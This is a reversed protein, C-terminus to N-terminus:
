MTRLKILTFRRGNRGVRTQTYFAPGPSTLKVAVAALAVIVLAPLALVIVLACDLVPKVSGYLGGAPLSHLAADPPTGGRLGQRECTDDPSVAPPLSGRPEAVLQYTSM